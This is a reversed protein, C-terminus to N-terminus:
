DSAKLDYIGQQLIEKKFYFAEADKRSPPIDINVPVSKEIL